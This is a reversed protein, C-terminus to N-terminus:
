EITTPWGTTDVIPTQLDMKQLTEVLIRIVVANRASKSDSPIIYWPAFETSTAELVKEYQKCFPYFLKRDALDSPQFKWHKEPRDIREQLRERQEEKSIHLFFKIITTGTEYLLREFDVIHRLRQAEEEKTIWDHVPVTLVDEYHSRNFIVMEGSQPVVGHVRWLYDRALENESPAKFYAVRIGLPNVAQFVKRIVGDKGSTDMGQLVVLVKRKGEVHLQEQLSGLLPALMRVTENRETKTKALNKKSAPDHESLNVHSDPKVLYDSLKFSM